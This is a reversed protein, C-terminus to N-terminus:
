SEAIESGGAWIGIRVIIFEAPYSPRVGVEIHLRGLAQEAFPNLIEDIRVYFAAEPTEGFLAGDRWARTLFDTITRRLKQWLALNNPEFVAWRIGEAISEELFLFLRRVNVYQWNTDRSTTRAGWLTPRAGGGFVRVVNIGQLNLQGQEVDSMSREVGLAGNVIENAPAKHVGRTLDSRAIIGCVHGSPPVLLPIGRGAPRVRLWPYYLAGYGRMSDLGARQGEISTAGFPALAPQADLVAFRDALLECHTVVAQQVAVPDVTATAVSADPIAVLNVDDIPALTDLADIYDQSAMTAVDEAAGGALATAAMAAPLSEPPRVPPPPEVVELRVLASPDANVIRQFYRPHAADVSLGAYTTGAGQAVTLDFEESQATAPTAPDMSLAIHLGERFTVRHTTSGGGLFETQVSEVILSDTSTGDDLTLMAGPVLATAVSAATSALRVTRVGPMADALRVTDGAAGAIDRDVRLDDGSVRVVTARQGGGVVTVDDGPRFQAGEGAGLPLTRGAAAGALTGEPQFLSTDATTLEHHDAVTIDIATAPVGPQRARVRIIDNGAASRDALVLEQYDGNSARVVYCVQGGNEFFGRVAYWLFFGPRPQEGFRQRFEDWSTVKTPTDLEGREAIGIFAATSTGVGQIPAGPAFEDIYVGPYSTQVAM